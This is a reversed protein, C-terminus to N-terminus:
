NILQFLDYEKTLVTFLEGAFFFFATAFVDMKHFKKKTWWACTFPDTTFRYYSTLLILVDAISTLLILVDALLILVYMLVFVYSAIQGSWVNQRIRYVRSNLFTIIIYM